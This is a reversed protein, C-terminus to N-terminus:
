ESVMVLAHFRYDNAGNCLHSRREIAVGVVWSFLFEAVVDVTFIGPHVGGGPFM